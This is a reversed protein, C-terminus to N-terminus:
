NIKNLLNRNEKKFYTEINVHVTIKLNILVRYLDIIKAKYYYICKAINRRLKFIM